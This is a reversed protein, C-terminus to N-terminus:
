LYNKIIVARISEYKITDPLEAKVKSVKDHGVRECVEMIIKEEDETFLEELNIQFQPRGFEEIYDTVYGLITSISVELEDSAENLTSGDSLMDLAIENNKREDGDLVLRKRKKENWEPQLNNKEIYSVVLEVIREGYREIKKPGFGGIDKLKELRDPYRGSIEKLTNKAIITPPFAREKGAFEKRLQVLAEFLKEDTNVYFDNDDESITAAVKSAINEQVDTKEAKVAKESKVTENAKDEELVINNEKVYKKIADKFAEGYKAYKVEGVGSIDLFADKNIPYKTSMERLTGDGFIIYPPIGADKAMNHRLERLIDFLENSVSKKVEVKFEKFQVQEQGRLVTMSRDNLALVPYAGEIQSIYGHSILTNIFNKLNEGSYDKMIGYTSIEQFNMELVKKNKSGRLVDILMTAGFNRKMRYICSLVKQSDVTKDVVEGHNLCNSCNGCDKDYNDGFYNLIYKRYCDNSYVFDVMQQLAKYQNNKRDPNEIGVEILYKQTHIDGPAFLLVCDSKEGDRGARGIEQYYGEINKPMNFHVVFRINSKDIGMGFANTAVMIKIRDYIFEEQNTKREEDSLGAHYRSVSYGKASLERYVNDVEKRTAAYIIGSQGKNSELYKLLYKKKNESKIINISLNERDFGTIFIKPDQLRLLKVVDQRVEKSATATFATIIPRVSLRDIFSSIRRYSSRFDHGWQSVCHAEDIAIQSIKIGAAVNCFENSDLREPAIYLVKYSGEKIGQLVGNFEMTSLSSNIYACPIGMEKMADVQDKMLSILPSIVITIGELILAPVQYCISKGSGTSMITLVDKGELINEIVQEQGPRFEKYGYYRELVEQM